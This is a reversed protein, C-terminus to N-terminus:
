CRGLETMAWPANWIKTMQYIKGNNNIDMVYVYDSSTSKNTPACRGGEGTHTGKFLAFVIAQNQNSSWCKVEYTCGPMTSTAIREDM